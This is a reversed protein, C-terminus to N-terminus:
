DLLKSALSLWKLYFNRLMKLQNNQQMYYCMSSKKELTMGGFYSLGELHLAVGGVKTPMIRMEDAKWGQPVKWKDFVELTVVRCMGTQEGLAVTGQTVAYGFPTKGLVLSVCV